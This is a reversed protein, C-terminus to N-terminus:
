WNLIENKTLEDLRRQIIAEKNKEREALAERMRALEKEMNDAKMKEEKLKVLFLENLVKALESKINEKDKDEASRYKDSLEMTKDELAVKQVILDFAEQNDGKIDLLKIMLPFRDSLM